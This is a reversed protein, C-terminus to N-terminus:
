PLTPLDGVAAAYAEANIQGAYELWKRNREDLSEYKHESPLAYAARLKRYRERQEKPVKRMDLSRYGLIQEYKTGDPLNDLLARFAWWHLHATTLDLGYAHYFSAFIYPADHALDSVRRVPKVREGEKVLPLKRGCLYFELLALIAADIDTPVDGTYWKLFLLVKDDYPVTLDFILRDFNIWDRFDSFVPYARGNVEVTEPLASELTIM